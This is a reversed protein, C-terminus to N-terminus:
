QAALAALKPFANLSNRYIVASLTDSSEARIRSLEELYAPLDAPHSPGESRFAPAMDPADTELLLHEAALVKACARVRKSGPYTLAGGFGLYFGKSAADKAQEVSGSFAHLAGKVGPYAALCEMVKFLARRSHVSVPLNLEQALALEEKFVCEQQQRDLGEVYFDLGIEGIGVLHPDDRHSLAFARLRKLDEFSSESLYLPHLGVCYGWHLARAAEAAREFDDAGACTIVACRVGAASSKAAVADLTEGLSALGVHNHTDIFELM